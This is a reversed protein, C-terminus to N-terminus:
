LTMHELCPPENTPSPFTIIIRGSTDRVFTRDCKLCYHPGEVDAGDMDPLKNCWCLFNDVGYFIPICLANARKIEADAGPSEGPLRVLAQCNSLWKIGLDTWFLYEHQYRQHWYHYLHPVFPTHGAKALEEAADITRNVNEEVNGKSYPGAIYVRM